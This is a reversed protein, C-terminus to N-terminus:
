RRPWLPLGWFLSPLIRLAQFLGFLALFPGKQGRKPWKTTLKQVKEASGRDTGPPPKPGNPAMTPCKHAVWARWFIKGGPFRAMKLPRAPFRVGKPTDWSGPNQAGQSGAPHPQRASGVPRRAEYIAGSTMAPLMKKELNIACGASFLFVYIHDVHLAMAFMKSGHRTKQRTAPRAGLPVSRPGSRCHPQRWTGGLSM